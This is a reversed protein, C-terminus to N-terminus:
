RVRRFYWAQRYERSDGTANHSVLEWGQGGLHNLVDVVDGAEADRYRRFECGLKESLRELDASNIRRDAASYYWQFAGPVRVFRLSCYEYTPAVPRVPERWGPAASSSRSSLALTAIVCALLVAGVAVGRSIRTNM